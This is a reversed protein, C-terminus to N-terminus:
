LTRLLEKAQANDPDYFLSQGLFGKAKEFDKYRYYYIGWLRLTEPYHMDLNLSQALLKKGLHEQNNELYVVALANLADINNINLRLAQQFYEEAEKPHGQKRYMDGLRKVWMSQIIPNNEQRLIDNVQLVNDDYKMLLQQHAVTKGGGEQQYLHNLLVKEQTWYKGQNFSVCALILFLIIGWRLRAQALLICFGISIFYFLHLAQIIGLKPIIQYTVLFSFSGIIIWGLAFKNLSVKRSHFYFLLFGYLPMLYGFERTLASLIFFLGAYIYWRKLGKRFGQLLFLLFLLGFFTQLSDGRGTIYRVVWEQTPLVMFLLSAGLSLSFRNFLTFCLWYVLFADALHIALNVWKYGIPNLAFLGYDVIYSSQLVPRYYSLKLYGSSKHADFLRSHWINPYLAAQKILPNHVITYYDDLVFESKTSPWYVMAALVCLVGFVISHIKIM